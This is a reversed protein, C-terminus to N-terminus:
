ANANKDITNHRASSVYWYYAATVVTFFLFAVVWLIKASVSLQGNRMMRVFMTLIFFIVAFVFVIIILEPFGLAFM